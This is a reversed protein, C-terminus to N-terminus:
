SIGAEGFPLGVKMQYDHIREAEEHTIRGDVVLLEGISQNTSERIPGVLDLDRHLPLIQSNM